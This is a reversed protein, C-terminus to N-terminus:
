GLEDDPNKWYKKMPCHGTIFNKKSGKRLKSLSKKIVTLFSNKLSFVSSKMDDIKVEMKRRGEKIM